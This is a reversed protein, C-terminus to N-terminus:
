PFFNGVTEVFEWQIQRPIKPMHKLTCFFAALENYNELDKAVGQPFGYNLLISAGLRSSIGAGPLTVVPIGNLLAFLCSHGGSIPTTDLLVAPSFHEISSVFEVHKPMQAINQNAHGTYIQLKRGASAALNICNNLFSETIKASIAWIGLASGRDFKPFSKTPPLWCRLPLAPCSIHASQSLVPDLLQGDMFPAPCSEPLGAWSLQTNAVGYRLSDIFSAPNQMGHMEIFIRMNLGRLREVLERESQYNILVANRFKKAIELIKPNASGGPALLALGIKDMHAESNELIANLANSLAGVTAKAGIWIGKGRGLSERVSSGYRQSVFSTQAHSLLNQQLLLNRISILSLEELGLAGNKAADLIQLKYDAQNQFHLRRASLDYVQVASLPGPCSLREFVNADANDVQIALAIVRSM